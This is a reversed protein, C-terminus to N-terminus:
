DSKAAGGSSAPLSRILTEFTSTDNALDLPIAWIRRFRNPSGHDQLLLPLPDRGEQAGAGTKREMVFDRHIVRGNQIASLQADSVKVGAEDFRAARFVIDYSQWAGAPRAANTEPPRYRYIAGCDSDAAERGFSDLIQLEYRRQIYVGSNGRKQGKQDGIPNVQFEVHLRLDGHPLRTVMDGAGPEIVFSEGELKWPFGGKGDRRRWHGRADAGSLPLAAVPREALVAELAKPESLDLLRLGRWRVELEDRRGGVGHVQLGIFGTPNMDDILDAAPIGNLWTRISPGIAIVRVRNWAGQRFAWRAAANDALNDLWGRRGEEFVGGTWSRPSPDIEIQYGHVRGNEYGEHSLSRVQVGSNLRPDVKFEYDLIFDSYDRKTCLFSNPTRPRSRGVICGDEAQYDAKGGLQKWGELSEGDFLSIWEQASVPAALAWLAIILIRMGSDDFANGAADLEM